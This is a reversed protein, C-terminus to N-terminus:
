AYLVVVVYTTGGGLWQTLSPRQGSFAFVPRDKTPLRDLYAFFRNRHEDSLRHPLARRSM